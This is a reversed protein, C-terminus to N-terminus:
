VTTLSETFCYICNLFCCGVSEYIFSYRLGERM